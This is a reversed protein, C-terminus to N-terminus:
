NLFPSWAPSRVDGERAPLTAKFRGDMSVMALVQRGDDVTSYMVMSGNPAISPSEDLSTRTLVKVFGSDLDQRAIRYQGNVRSVMVLAKGDPTQTAGLNLEGGWTMREVGGSELDVRYIQPKGGRESSFFLSKGDDSWAPETDIRRNRTIRKLEGSKLDKVYVDPQGDFSLVMAMKRGDPSWAPASNIGPYDTLKTRKPIQGADAYLDQIYIEHRKNEISVYALQKGDPSWTPSMVPEQSRLLVRENFGDYDSIRLQYPFEAGPNFVVYAIRTLFAGREGTLAQYVRDSILHAYQRLQSSGVTGTRSLLLNDDSKVAQKAQLETNSSKMVQSRLVDVLQYTIKYKDPEVQKVEGVLVAEVGLKAWLEPKVDYSTEPTQPMAALAIPNFKGSRRLDSEVVKTVDLPLKGNGFWNFPVVAIPRATDVGETILIDLAALSPRSLLLCLGVILFSKLKM